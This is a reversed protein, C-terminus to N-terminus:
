SPGPSSPELGPPPEGPPGHELGHRHWIERRLDFRKRGVKGLEEKSLLHDREPEWGRRRCEAQWDKFAVEAKRQRREREADSYGLM